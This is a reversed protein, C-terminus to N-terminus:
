VCTMFIHIYVPANVSKIAPTSEAAIITNTNLPKSVDKDDLTPDVQVEHKVENSLSVAALAAALAPTDSLMTEEDDDLGEIFDEDGDSDVADDNEAYGFSSLRNLLKPEIDENSCTSSSIMAADFAAAEAALRENEIQIRNLEEELLRNLLIQASAVEPGSYNIATAAELASQISAASEFNLSQTLTYKVENIAIKQQRLSRVLNRPPDILEESVGCEEARIVAINLEDVNDISAVATLGVLIDAAHQRAKKEAIDKERLSVLVSIAHELSIHASFESAQAAKVATELGEITNDTLATEILKTIDEIHRNKRDEEELRKREAEALAARRSNEEEIAKARAIKEALEKAKQEEARRKAEEKLRIRENEEDVRKRELALVHGGGNALAIAHYLMSAWDMMEDMTEGQMVLSTVGSVVRFCFFKGTESSSILSVASGMLPIDGKVNPDDSKEKYILRGEAMLFYRKQWNQNTGRRQRSLKVLYGEKHPARRFGLQLPPRWNKLKDITAHYQQLVVSKGNISTLASGVHVGTERATSLRVMAWEGARELVIGLPKNETFNVDYFIDEDMRSLAAHLLPDDHTVSSAIVGRIASVWSATSAASDSKVHLVSKPTVLEFSFPLLNTDFVSCNSHIEFLEIAEMKGNAARDMVLLETSTLAFFHEMWVDGGKPPRMRLMGRKIANDYAAEIRNVTKKEVAAYAQLKKM